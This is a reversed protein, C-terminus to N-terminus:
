CKVQSFDRYWYCYTCLPSILYSILTHELGRKWYPTCPSTARQRLWILNLLTQFCSFSNNPELHHSLTSLCSLLDNSTSWTEGPVTASSSTSTTAQSRGEVSFFCEAGAENKVMMGAGSLPVPSCIGLEEEQAQQRRLAVQVVSFVYSHKIM